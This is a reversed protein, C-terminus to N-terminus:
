KSKKGSQIGIYDKVVKEVANNMKEEESMLSQKKAQEEQKRLIEKVEAGTLYSFFGANECEDILFDVVAKLNGKEKILEDLYDCVEEEREEEFVGTAVKLFETALTITYGITGYIDKKSEIEYKKINSSKFDIIM